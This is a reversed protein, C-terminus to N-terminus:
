RQITNRLDFIFISYGAKAAPARKNAWAVSDLYQASIAYVKAAPTKFEAESFDAAKIGFRGPSDQGFYLFTIEGIDRKKLVGALAPLDQGWDINSDRLYKYGHDAGGIAENFYSLYDPAAFVSAIALWASFAFVALNQWRARLLPMLRSAFVCLLPFIPLIYRMGLQLNGFSALVFVAAAPILLYAEDTKYHRACVGAILLFIFALPTKILFALVYYFPNGKGSWHGMFFMGHGEKGHKAVGFIGTIYTTLPLPTNRLFSEVKKAKQEDWSPIVKSALSQVFAIKEEQNITEALFPKIKFGYGAWITAISILFIYILKKFRHAEPTQRTREILYIIVFVPYLVLATYKSLQALGLAIGAIILTTGRPARMFRWFTYMSLLLFAATALDITALSSHAIVEPLFCFLFLAFLGASAGYVRRAWQYVLFGAFLGVLLIMLRSLFIISSTKAPNYEFILKKGFAPTDADRWSADDFSARLDLAGLPLALIYRPLPPTYPNLRYDWKQYYSFGSPIHHAIEDCTGSTRMITSVGLGAFIGLLIIIFIIRKM